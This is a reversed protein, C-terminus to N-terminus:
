REIGAVKEWDLDTFREGDWKMHAQYFMEAFFEYKSSREPNHVYFVTKHPDLNYKGVIEASVQEVLGTVSNGPNEEYLETLVVVTERDNSRIYIGCLSPMEWKGKFHYIEDIYKKKEEMIM